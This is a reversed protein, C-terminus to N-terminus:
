SSLQTHVKYNQKVPSLCIVSSPVSVSTLIETVLKFVNCVTLGCVPVLKGIWIVFCSMLQQTAKRRLVGCAMEDGVPLLYWAGAIAGAGAM